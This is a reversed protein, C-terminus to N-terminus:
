FNRIVRFGLEPLTYERSFTVGAGAQIMFMDTVEWHIQPMLMWASPGRLSQAWVSELGWTVYNNADYFLSWNLLQETREPRDGSGLETRFGYMGLMSWREDIRVGAIYLLTPSWRQSDRDYLLIMQAGHIFQENFGTGFTWQAAGKYAELTDEEFPLEFEVAFGDWVAYEIEPAFEARHRDDPVLGIPDPIRNLGVRRNLPILGLVNVEMEGQRAGLPRVLDFVMPEPIRPSDDEAYYDEAGLPEFNLGADWDYLPQSPVPEPFFYPQDASPPAETVVQAHLPSVEWALCACCCVWAALSM